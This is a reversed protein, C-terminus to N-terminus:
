ICSLPMSHYLGDNDLKRRLSAMVNSLSKTDYLKLSSSLPHSVTKLERGTLNPDIEGRQLAKFLEQALSDRVKLKTAPPMTLNRDYRIEISMSKGCISTSDM